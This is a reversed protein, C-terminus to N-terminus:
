PGRRRCLRVITATSWVRLIPSALASLPIELVMSIMPLASVVIAISLPRGGGREGDFATVNLMLLQAHPETVPPSFEDLSDGLLHNPLAPHGHGDERRELECERSARLRARGVEGLPPHPRCAPQVRESFAKRLM